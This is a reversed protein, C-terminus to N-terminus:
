LSNWLRTESSNAFLRFGLNHLVGITPHQQGKAEHCQCAESGEFCCVTNAQWGLGRGVKCLRKFQALFSKTPGLVCKGLVDSTYCLSLCFSPIKSSRGVLWRVKQSPSGEWDESMGHPTEDVDRRTCDRYNWVNEHVPRQWWGELCEQSLNRIELLSDVCLISRVSAQDISTSQLVSHRAQGHAVGQAGFQLGNRDTKAFVLCRTSSCTLLM